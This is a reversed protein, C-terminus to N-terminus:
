PKGELIEHIKESVSIRTVLRGPVFTYWRELVRVRLVIRSLRVLERRMQPGDEIDKSIERVEPARLPTGDDDQLGAGDDQLLGAILWRRARTM